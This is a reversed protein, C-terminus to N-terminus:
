DPRVRVLAFGDYGKVGVTQVATGLARPEAAIREFLERTGRVDAQASADDAVQGNRVVNDFVLLGGPRALQMAWEFYRPNNAKDADAFVLDFAAPPQAALAPLLDLAAGVRVEVRDQLGAAALNERAVAAHRPERELTVLRAQADDAPLARGLWIASYGGLTGIELIRRAGISLALLQLLRAQNPALQIGPLGAARCRALAGELVPDSLALVDEFYRDVRDWMAQNM